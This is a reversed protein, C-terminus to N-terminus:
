SEKYMAQMTKVELAKEIQEKHLYEYVALMDAPPEGHDARYKEIIKTVIDHLVNFHKAEETSLTYFTNAIAPYEEKLEIAMKAYDKVGCIEDDIFETIKEIIKM